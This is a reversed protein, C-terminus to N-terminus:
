QFVLLALMISQFFFGIGNSVMYLRDKQIASRVFFLLLGSWLLLVMSLPPLVVAAGKLAMYTVPLTAGHILVLGLWGCIEGFKKTVFDMAKEMNFQKVKEIKQTFTNTFQSSNKGSDVNKEM